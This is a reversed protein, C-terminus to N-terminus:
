KPKRSEICHPVEEGELHDEGDRVVWPDQRLFGVCVVFDMKQSGVGAQLEEDQGAVKHVIM